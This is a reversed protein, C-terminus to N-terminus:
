WLGPIMRWRSEVKDKGFKEESWRKTRKAILGLNAIVFGLVSLMTQNVLRGKPAGLVAFTTYIVCEMTYHPCVLRHFIPHDPLTYKKLSGLYAHCDRQIGSALVFFPLVSSTRLSPTWNAIRLAISSWTPPKTAILTASGEIWIGISVMVYYVLGILYIIVPMTAKSPKMLAISEYLRRSGQIAMLAWLLYIRSLPMSSELTGQTQRALWRLIAGRTFIQYGWFTSMAVSLVYYHLFWTHPVPYSPLDAIRALLSPKPAMGSKQVTTRSGYAM